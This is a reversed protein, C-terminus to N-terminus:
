ELGNELIEQCKEKIDSNIASKMKRVREAANFKNKEIM